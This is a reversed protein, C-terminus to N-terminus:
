SSLMGWLKNGLGPLSPYDVVREKEQPREVSLATLIQSGRKGAEEQTFEGGLIRFHHRVRNDIGCAEISQLVPEEIQIEWSLDLQADPRGKILFESHLAVEESVRFEVFECHKLTRYLVLQRGRKLCASHQDTVCRTSIEGVGKTWRHFTDTVANVPDPVQTEPLVKQLPWVGLDVRVSFHEGRAHLM